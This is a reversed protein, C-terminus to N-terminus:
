NNSNADILKHNNFIPLLTISEFLIGISSLVTLNYFYKINHSFIIIILLATFTLLSKHRFIEKEGEKFPKNISDQPAYSYILLFSIFLNIYIFYKFSSVLYELFLAILFSAVSCFFCKVASSAHMGGASTRLIMFPLFFFILKDLKQLLIGLIILGVTQFILIFIVELGFVSNEYQSNKISSNKLFIDSIYISLKRIM